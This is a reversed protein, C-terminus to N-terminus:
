AAFHVPLAQSHWLAAVQARDRCGLKRLVNSVHFKVTSREITLREAIESNSLGEAVLVAVTRERGTLQTIEATPLEPPLTHGARGSLLTPVLEPSIWGRGSLVERVARVYGHDPDDRDVIGAVRACRPLRFFADSRGNVLVIVRKGWEAVSPDADVTDSEVIAVDAPTAPRASAYRDDKGSVLWGLGALAETMRRRASPTSIGVLIREM